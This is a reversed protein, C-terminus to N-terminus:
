WNEQATLIKNATLLTFSNWKKEKKLVIQNKSSYTYTINIFTDLSSFLLLINSSFFKSLVHTLIYVKIKPSHNDFLLTKYYMYVSDIFIAGIFRNAPCSYLSLCLSCVNHVCWPFSLTPHVSLTANLYICQWTYFLQSTPLLQIVCPAWRSSQSSRSHHTPTPTPLSTWSPPSM